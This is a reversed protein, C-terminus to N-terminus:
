ETTSLGEGERLKELITDRLVIALVDYVGDTNIGNEYAVEKITDRMHGTFDDARVHDNCYEHVEYDKMGQVDEWVQYAQDDAWDEADLEEAVEAGFKTLSLPSKSTILPQRPLRRFIEEVNTRIEKIDKQIESMFEKFAKRDSNVSGHWKGFAFIIGGIVLVASITLWDPM